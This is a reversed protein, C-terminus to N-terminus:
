EQLQKLYESLKQVQLSVKPFKSGTGSEQVADVFRDQANNQSANCTM